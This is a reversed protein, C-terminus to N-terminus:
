RRRGGGRGGGARRAGGGMNAHGGTRAGGARNQISAGPRPTPQTRGLNPRNMGGPNVTSPRTVSAGPNAPRTLPNAPRANPTGTRGPLTTPSGPRGRMNGPATRAHRGGVTNAWNTNRHVSNFRNLNGANINRNLVNKNVNVNNFRNGVYANNRWNVYPRAAGIWGGGVWGHYYPGGGWWNWGRNLWAGIAFGTGFSILSSAVIAGTSPAFVYDPDYMPVYIVSPQAPVITIAGNDAAVTQQPTSVLSGANQAQTRLRQISASVDNSQAVFAQGLATTWDPQDSMKYLVEPYHAIAKVSVDWQQNDIQSPDNNARLWQAAQTVQDVFTSAPLIQALLPDPFLAIPALLNDLENSSFLDGTQLYGAMGSGVASAATVRQSVIYPFAILSVAIAITLKSKM